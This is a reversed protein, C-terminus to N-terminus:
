QTSIIRGFEVLSAWVAPRFRAASQALAHAIGAFTICEICTQCFSAIWLHKFSSALGWCFGEELLGFDEPGGARTQIQITM